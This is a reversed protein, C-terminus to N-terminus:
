DPTGYWFREAANFADPGWGHVANHFKQNPMPMLNWPQNKIVDPVHSGWGGRPILWHHVPTGKALNRTAGYWARTAKWTNSGGKWAGKILGGAVARAPIIDTIALATNFLGWGWRGCNFDEYAQKGSGWVPIMSEWFGVELGLPDVWNIPNNFVYAYLNIGGSEGIPDRNVWRGAIGSYFRYGFNSLGSEPDYYKTAFRIPQVLSGAAEAVEGFPRYSYSARIQGGSDSVAVVNGRADFLYDYVAGGQQLNLLRGIGGLNADRWLYERVTANAQDREQVVLFGDYVLRIDNVLAGNRYKLIRGM